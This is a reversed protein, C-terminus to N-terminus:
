KYYMDAQFIMVNMNTSEKSADIEIIKIARSPLFIRFLKLVLTKTVCNYGNAVGSFAM